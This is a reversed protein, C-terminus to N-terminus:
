GIGSITFSFYHRNDPHLPITLHAHKLDTSFQCEHRPNSLHDHLKFSVELHSGPLLEIVRSYDFIIRPEDTPKLDDVKDVMVARANWLSLRGNVPETLEYVGGELGDQM